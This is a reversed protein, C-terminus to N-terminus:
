KDEKEKMKGQNKLDTLSNHINIEFDENTMKFKLFSMFFLWVFVVFFVVDLISSNLNFISM